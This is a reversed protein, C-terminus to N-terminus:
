RHVLVPTKCHTLVKHTESGLLLGSLGRRGHSAMVILDCRARKAARIIAEYPTADQVYRTELPVGASEALKTAAALIKGAAKKVAVEHDKPSYTYPVPIESVIPPMYTPQVNLVVLTAGTDKGLVIAAKLAATSLKSGDTPVLIRKYM